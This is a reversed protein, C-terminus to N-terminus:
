DPLIKDTIIDSIEKLTKDVDNIGIITGDDEIGIYITGDHSNLFAVVEREFADNLIRKFEIQETEFYKM